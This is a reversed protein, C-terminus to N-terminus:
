NLLKAVAKIGAWVIIVWFITLVGMLFMAFESWTVSQYEKYDMYDKSKKAPKESYISVPKPKIERM